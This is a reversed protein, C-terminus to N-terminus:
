IYNITEIWQEFQSRKILIQKGKHLIFDLDPNEAIIERLKNHGISSYEAAEVISMCIKENPLLSRNDMNQM